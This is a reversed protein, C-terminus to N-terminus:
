FGVRGSNEKLWAESQRYDPCAKSVQSWFRPSHNLERLHMLEHIIIYDRVAPPVQVLRWNLSITGNHSCSGWRSKQNRVVVKRLAAMGHRQALQMVCDHLEQRAMENLRTEVLPRLNIDPSEIPIHQTDFHLEWGKELTVLRLLTPQGHLLIEMGPTMAQPLVNRKDLMEWQNELWEKRSHAFQRAFKVTGGRPLTIVVTRDARLRMVYNKARAHRRYLVPIRKSHIIVYDAEPRPALPSLLRFFERIKTTTVVNEGINNTPYALQRGHYEL